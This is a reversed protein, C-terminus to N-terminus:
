IAVINDGEETQGGGRIKRQAEQIQKPPLESYLCPRTKKTSNNFATHLHAMKREADGQATRALLFFALLLRSELAERRSIIITRNVIIDTHRALTSERKRGYKHKEQRNNSQVTAAGRQRWVLVFDSSNM